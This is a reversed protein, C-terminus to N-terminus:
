KTGRLRAFLRIRSCNLSPFYELFYPVCVRLWDAIVHQSLAIPKGVDQTDQQQTRDQQTNQAQTQELKHTPLEVFHFVFKLALSVAYSCATMSRQVMQLTKRAAQMDHMMPLMQTYM